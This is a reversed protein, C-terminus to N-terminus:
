QGAGHRQSQGRSQGQSPSGQGVPGALVWTDKTGGGRSSYVILEGKGPVAVAARGTSCRTTPLATRGTATSCRTRTSAIRAWSRVSGVDPLVRTAHSTAYTRVM